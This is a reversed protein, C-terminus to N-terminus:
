GLRPYIDSRTMIAAAGDFAIFASRRREASRRRSAFPLSVPRSIDCRRSTESRVTCRSMSASLMAPTGTNASRPARPPHCSSSPHRVCTGASSSASSSPRRIVCGRMTPSPRRAPAASRASRLSVAARGAASRSRAADIRWRSKTSVVPQRPVVSFRVMSGITCSATDRLVVHRPDESMVRGGVVFRWPKMLHEDNTNQLAARADAVGKDFLALLDATTRWEPMKYAEGGPPRIDLEDQNVTFIIWSPLTAVLAALYGLPMSKPHPVWEPKGEPVQELARRTRPTERELEALFLDTMTM